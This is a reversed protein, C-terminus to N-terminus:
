IVGEGLLRGYIIDAAKKASSSNGYAISAKLEAKWVEKKTIADMATIEYTASQPTGNSYVIHTAHLYIVLDKSDNQVANNIKEDLGGSSNLSLEKKQIEFAFVEVKKSDTQFDREMKEKLKQCYTRNIGTEFPIIILSNKYPEKIAKHDVISNITPGCSALLVICLLLLTLNKM